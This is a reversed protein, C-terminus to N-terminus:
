LHLSFSIIALVIGGIGISQYHHFHMFLIPYDFIRRSHGLIGIAHMLFLIINSSIFFSLFFWRSISDISRISFFYHFYMNVAAFIFYVAGLLLVYHFHGVVFYIDYFLIDLLCNLVIMGSFDDFAFLFLLGFIQDQYIFWCCPFWIFFVM